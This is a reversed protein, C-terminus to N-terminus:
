RRFVDTEALEHPGILGELGGSRLVREGLNTSEPLAHSAPGELASLCWTGSDVGQRYGFRFPPTLFTKEGGEM